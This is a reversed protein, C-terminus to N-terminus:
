LQLREIMNRLSNLHQLRTSVLADVLELMPSAGTQHQNDEVQNRAKTPESLALVGNLRSGLENIADSVQNDAAALRQISNMIPSTTGVRQESDHIRRNAYRVFSSEFDDETM